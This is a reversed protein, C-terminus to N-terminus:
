DMAGLLRLTQHLAEHALLASGTIALTEALTADTLGRVATALAAVFWGLTAVLILGAWAVAGPLAAVGFVLSPSHAFGVARSVARFDLEAGFIRTAIGHVIVAWVIWGILAALVAYAVDTSEVAPDGHASARVFAELVGATVVVLGAQLSAAEDRAAARYTASRLLLAGVVRPWLLRSRDLRVPRVM